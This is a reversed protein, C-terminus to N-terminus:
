WDIRDVGRISPPGERGAGPLVRDARNGHRNGHPRRRHRGRAPAGAPEAASRAQLCRDVAAGDPLREGQPHRSDPQEQHRHDDAPRRRRCDGRPRVRVAWADEIPLTGGFRVGGYIRLTRRRALTLHILTLFNKDWRVTIGYESVGGFGELM